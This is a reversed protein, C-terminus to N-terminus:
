GKSNSIEDAIVRYDEVPLDFLSWYGFQIAQFRPHNEEEIHKKNKIKSLMINLNHIYTKNTARSIMWELITSYVDNDNM